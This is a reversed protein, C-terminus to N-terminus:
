QRLRTLSADPLLSGSGFPPIGIVRKWDEYALLIEVQAELLDVEAERADAQDILFETAAIEGRQFREGQLAVTRRTIEYQTEALQLQIKANEVDQAALRVENELERLREELSIESSRLENRAEAVAYREDFRDFIPISISVQINTSKDQDRLAQRLASRMFPNEASGDFGMTGDLEVTIPSTKRADRLGFRRNDVSLEALRLDLRNQMAHALGDTANVEIEEVRVVTDPVIVTTLPLGLMENVEARQRVLEQRSQTRSFASRAAEGAFKLSDIESLRQGTTRQNELMRLSDRVFLVSDIEAEKLASVLVYYEEIVDQALDRESELLEVQARVYSERSLRYSRQRGNIGFFDQSLRFGLFTAGAFREDADSSPQHLSTITGSIGFSGGTPLPMSVDLEAEVTRRLTHVFRDSGDDASVRRLASVYEPTTLQLDVEPLFREARAGYWDLKENDWDLMERIFGPNNQRALELAQTLSLRVTDPQTSALVLSTLALAIM